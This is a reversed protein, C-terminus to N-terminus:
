RRGVPTGGGMMRKGIGSFISQQLKRMLARVMMAGLVFGLVAGGLLGYGTVEGFSLGLSGMWNVLALVIISFISGVFALLTILIAKLYRM